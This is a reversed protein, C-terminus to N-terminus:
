GSGSAPRRGDDVLGLEAEVAGLRAHGANGTRARIGVEVAHREVQAAADRQAADGALAAVRADRNWGAQDAEGAGEVAAASGVGVVRGGVDIVQDHDVAVVAQFEAALEPGDRQVVILEAAGSVREGIDRREKAFVGEDMWNMPSRLAFLGNM